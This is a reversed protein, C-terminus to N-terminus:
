NRQSRRRVAGTILLHNWLASLPRQINRVLARTMLEEAAVVENALGLQVADEASFWDQSSRHQGVHVRSSIVIM